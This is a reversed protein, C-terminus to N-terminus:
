YVEYQVVMFFSSIIRRTSRTAAGTLKAPYIHILFLPLSTEEFKLLITQPSIYTGLTLTVGTVGFQVM